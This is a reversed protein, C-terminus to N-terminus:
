IDYLEINVEKIRKITSFEHFNCAAIPTGNANVKAKIRYLCNSVLGDKEYGVGEM